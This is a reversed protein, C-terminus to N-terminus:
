KIARKQIDASTTNKSRRDCSVLGIVYLGIEGDWCMLSLFFCCLSESIIKNWLELESCQHVPFFGVLGVGKLGRENNWSM